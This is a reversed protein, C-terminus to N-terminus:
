FDCCYKCHPVILELVLQSQTHSRTQWRSRKNLHKNFCKNLVSKSGVAHSGHYRTVEKTKTLGSLNHM